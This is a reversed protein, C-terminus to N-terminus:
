RCVLGRGRALMNIYALLRAVQLGGTGILQNLAGGKVIGGNGKKDLERIVQDWPHVIILFRKEIMM